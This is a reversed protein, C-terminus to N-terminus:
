QRISGSGHSFQANSAAFQDQAALVIALGCPGFRQSRNPQALRRLMAGNVDGGRLGPVLFHALADRALPALAGLAHRAHRGALIGKFQGLGNAPV